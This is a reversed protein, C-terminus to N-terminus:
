IMREKVCAITIYAIWEGRSCIGRIYTPESKVKPGRWRFIVTSSCQGLHSRSQERQVCPCVPIAIGNAEPGHFAVFVARFPLQTEADSIVVLPYRLVERVVILRMFHITWMWKYRCEWEVRYTEPDM